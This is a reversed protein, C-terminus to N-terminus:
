GRWVDTSTASLGKIDVTLGSLGGDRRIIRREVYAGNGFSARPPMADHAGEPLAVYIGLRRDEGQAPIKFLLNYTDSTTQRIELYGPRLEDSWAPGALLGGLLSLLIWLRIMAHCGHNSRSIKSRSKMDIGCRAIYNQEAESRRANAWERVVAARVRMWRRCAAM